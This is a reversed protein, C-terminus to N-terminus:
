FTITNSWAYHTRENVDDPLKVINGEDTIVMNDGVENRHTLLLKFIVSVSGQLRNHRCELLLEHVSTKHPLVEVPIFVNRLPENHTYFFDNSIVRFYFFDFDEMGYRLTDPSDNLIM